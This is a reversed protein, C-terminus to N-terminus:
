RALTKSRFSALIVWIGCSNRRIKQEIIPQCLECFFIYLGGLKGEEEGAQHSPVIKLDFTLYYISQVMWSWGICCLAFIWVHLPTDRSGETYYHGTGGPSGTEAHCPGM